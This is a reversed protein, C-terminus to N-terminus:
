WQYSVLLHIFLLSPLQNEVGLGFKTAMAVITLGVVNQVTGNFRGDRFGGLLGLCRGDM